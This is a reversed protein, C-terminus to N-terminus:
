STNRSNLEKKIDRFSKYSYYGFITFFLIMVFIKGGVEDLWLFILKALKSKASPAQNMPDTWNAYNSNIYFLLFLTGLAKWINHNKLIKKLLKM